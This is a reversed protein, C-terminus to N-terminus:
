DLDIVVQSSHYGGLIGKGNEVNSYVQVAQAFPDGDVWYQLAASTYYNYYAESLKRVEVILQGAEWEEEEDDYFGGSIYTEAPITYSRGDFVRDSFMLEDYLYEELLVSESYVSLLFKETTYATDVVYQDEEDWYGLQVKYQQYARIEYYDNGTPDNITVEFNLEGGFDASEGVLDITFSPAVAPIVDSVLATPYGSKEIELQVSSGAAPIHDLYYTGRLVEGDFSQLGLFEEMQGILQDNEYLYITADTLGAFSSEDDLIYRDNTLFVSVATDAGMLSSVVISSEFDPQDIDLVLECSSIFSLAFILSIYTKFSNM